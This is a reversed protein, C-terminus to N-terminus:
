GCEITGKSPLMASKENEKGEFLWFLFLGSRPRPRLALGNCWISGKDDKKPGKKRVHIVLVETIRSPSKEKDNRKKPKGKSPISRTKKRGEAVQHIHLLSISLACLLFLIQFCFPDGHHLIDIYRGKPSLAQPAQRKEEKRKKNNRYKDMPHRNPTFM